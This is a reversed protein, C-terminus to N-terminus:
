KKLIALAAVIRNECGILFGDTFHFRAEPPRMFVSLWDHFAIASIAELSSPFEICALGTEAFASKETRKLSPERV